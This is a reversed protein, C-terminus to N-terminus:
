TPDCGMIGAVIRTGDAHPLIQKLLLETQENANGYPLLSALSAVGLHRYVAASTVILIDAGAEIAYRAIQGDGPAIGVLLPERSGEPRTVEKFKVTAPM